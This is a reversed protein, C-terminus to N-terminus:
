LRILANCMQNVTLEGSQIDQEVEELSLDSWTGADVFDKFCEILTQENYPGNYGANELAMKIKTM